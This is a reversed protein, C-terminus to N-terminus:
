FLAKVQFRTLRKFEDAEAATPVLVQAEHDGLANLDVDGLARWEAERPWDGKGYGQTLVSDGSAASGSEVYTVPRIGLDMAAMKCIAIGYPEFTPRVYRKRWRMLPVAESPALATFAV